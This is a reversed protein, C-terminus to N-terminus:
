HKLVTNRSIGFTGNPVTKASVTVNISVNCRGKASSFTTADYKDYQGATQWYHHHHNMIM